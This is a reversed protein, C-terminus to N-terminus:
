NIMSPKTYPKQNRFSHSNNNKIPGFSSSKNSQYSSNNTLIKNILHSIENFNPQNLVSNYSEYINETSKLQNKNNNYNNNHNILQACSPNSLNTHSKSIQSVQSAKQVTLKHGNLFIFENLCIKDVPDYDDFTIFGFNKPKLTEKNKPIYLSIINGYKEFYNKLDNENLKDNNIGGIFLKNVSKNFEQKKNQNRPVSRKIDLQKNDLIHPRNKMLNDVMNEDIYQVFGFGKSKKTQSDRIIVFDKLQGYKAFYTEFLNETTSYSLGGIFVKNSDDFTKNKYFSKFNSSFSKQEKQTTVCKSEFNIFNTSNFKNEFFHESQNNTTSFNRSNNTPFDNLEHIVTM